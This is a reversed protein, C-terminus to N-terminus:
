RMRTTSKFVFATEVSVKVPTSGGGGCFSHCGGAPFYNVDKETACPARISSHQRLQPVLISWSCSGNQLRSSHGNQSSKRVDQSQMKSTRSNDLASRLAISAYMSSETSGKLPM